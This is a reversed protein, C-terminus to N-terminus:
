LYFDNEAWLFERTEDYVGPVIRADYIGGVNLNHKSIPRKRNYYQLTVALLCLCDNPVEFSFSLGNLDFVETEVMVSQRNVTRSVLGQKLRFLVVSFCLECATSGTVFKLTRPLERNPYTVQLKGDELKVQLKGPLRETLRRAQNFEFGELGYFSDEVFHYEGTEQDRSLMLVQNLVASLRAHLSGDEAIDTEEDFANKIQSSMFGAKGFNASAMKTAETQKTTGPETKAIVQQRGRSKKFVVPGIIGRLFKGDYEAM